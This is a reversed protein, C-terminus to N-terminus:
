SGEEKKEKKIMGAGIKTDYVALMLVGINSILAVWSMIEVFGDGLNIGLYCLYTIILFMLIYGIWQEYTTYPQGIYEIIKM